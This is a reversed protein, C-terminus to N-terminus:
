ESKSIEDCFALLYNTFIFMYTLSSEIQLQLEIKYKANQLNCKVFNATAFVSKKLRM